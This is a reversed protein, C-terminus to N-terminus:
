SPTGRHVEAERLAEVILTYEPTAVFEVSAVISVRRTCRPQGLPVAVVDSRHQAIALSPALGVGVRAAVLGQLSQYDDTWFVARPTVGARRFLLDHIREYPARHNRLIWSEDGLAVLDVSEKQARPHDAPLLVCIPDDTLAVYTFTGDVPRPALDYEFLLVIEAEHERLLSVPDVADLQKVALRIDPREHLVRQFARPLLDVGATPFAGITIHLHGDRQAEFDRELATVQELLTRARDRLFVGSQNLRVGRAGRVFLPEGLDRELLGIQQSVAPQSLYLQAAAATFSGTDAVAVFLQLRRLDLM